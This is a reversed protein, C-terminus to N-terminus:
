AHNFFNLRIIIVIVIIIIIVIVIIIIIIIIIGPDCLTRFPPHFPQSIDPDSCLFQFVPLQWPVSPTTHLLRIFVHNSFDHVVM